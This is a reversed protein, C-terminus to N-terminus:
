GYIKLRQIIRCLFYGATVSFITTQSVYFPYMMWLANLNINPVCYSIWPSYNVNVYTCGYDELIWHYNNWHFAHGNDKEYNIKYTESYFVKLNSIWVKFRHISNWHSNDCMSSKALNKNLSAYFQLQIENLQELQKCKYQLHTLMYIYTRYSLIFLENNLCWELTGIPRYLWSYVNRSHINMLVKFQQYFQCHDKRGNIIIGNCVVFSQWNIDTFTLAWTTESCKDVKMTISSTTSFFLLIRAVGYRIFEM